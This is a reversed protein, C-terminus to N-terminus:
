LIPAHGQTFGAQMGGHQNGQGTRDRWQGAMGGRDGCRQGPIGPTQGVFAVTGVVAAQIRLRLRLGLGRQLQPRIGVAQVQQQDIRQLLLALDGLGQLHGVTGNAVPM